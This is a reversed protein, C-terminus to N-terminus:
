NEVNEADKEIELDKGIDEFSSTTGESSEDDPTTDGADHMLLDEKIPRWTGRDLFLRTAEM